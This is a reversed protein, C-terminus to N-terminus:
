PLPMKVPKNEMIKGTKLCILSRDYECYYLHKKNLSIPLWYEKPTKLNLKLNVM